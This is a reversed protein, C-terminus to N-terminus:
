KRSVWSIPPGKEATQVFFDFDSSSVLDFRLNSEERQRTIDSNSLGSRWIDEDDKFRDIQLVGAGGKTPWVYWHIKGGGPRYAVADNNSNREM